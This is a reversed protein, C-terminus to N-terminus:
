FSDASYRSTYKNIIANAFEIGVKDWRESLEKEKNIDCEKMCCGNESAYLIGDIFEDFDVTKGRIDIYMKEQYYSTMCFTHIYRGDLDFLEYVDYGYKENLALAFLNCSGRLFNRADIYSCEGHPDDINIEPFDDICVSQLLNGDYFQNHSSVTEYKNIMKM